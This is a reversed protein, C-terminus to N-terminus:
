GVRQLLIGLLLWSTECLTKEPMDPPVNERALEEGPFEERPLEEEEIHKFKYDNSDRNWSNTRIHKPTLPSELLGKIYDVDIPRHLVRRGLIENLEDLHSKITADVDSVFGSTTILPRKIRFPSGGNFTLNTTM